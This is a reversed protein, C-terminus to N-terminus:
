WSNGFRFDGNVLEVFNSHAFFDEITHFANGVHEFAASGPLSEVFRVLEEDIYGIPSKKGFAGPSKKSQWKQLVENWQYNDFHEVDKYGGYANPDCLMFLNAVAGTQSYDRKVNGAHIQKIEESTLNTLELAAEELIHHDTDSFRSIRNANQDGGQQVVHALEHTLLRKGSATEPSYRGAAFVISNDATYALAQISRASHAAGADTHVRVQSFDHGFRREMDQRLAPELPRGSGALVRDVSDPATSTAGVVQGAFRQIRPAAGGVAFHAPTALVQDAVRDAEQEFQEGPQNITLM